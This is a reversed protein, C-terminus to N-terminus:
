RIELSSEFVQWSYPSKGSISFMRRVALESRNQSRLVVSADLSICESSENPLDTFWLNRKWPLSLWHLSKPKHRVHQGRWNTPKRVVTESVAQAKFFRTHRQMKCVCFHTCQPVCVANQPILDGKFGPCIPRTFFFHDWDKKPSKLHSARNSGFWHSGFRLM